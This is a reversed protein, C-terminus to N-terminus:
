ESIDDPIISPGVIITDLSVQVEKYDSPKAYGFKINEEMREKSIFNKGDRTFATKTNVLSDSASIFTDHPGFIPDWFGRQSSKEGTTISQKEIDLSPEVPQEKSTLLVNWIPKKINKVEGAEYDVEVPLIDLITGKGKIKTKYEGDRTITIELDEIDDARVAGNTLYYLSTDTLLTNVVGRGPDFITIGDDESIKVVSKTSKMQGTEPDLESEYDVEVPIIQFITGKGKIRTKYEGDRTETIELIEIDTARVAGHTLCCLATDTILTNIERQDPDYIEIGGDESMKVFTEVTKAVEPINQDLIVNYLVPLIIKKGHESTEIFEMKTEPPMQDWVKKMKVVLDESDEKPDGKQSQYSSLQKAIPEWGEEIAKKAGERWQPAQREVERSIEEQTQELSREWQPAQREVERSIRETQEQLDDFLGAHAQSLFATNFCLLGMILFRVFKFKNM